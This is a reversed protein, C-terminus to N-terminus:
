FKDLEHFFYCSFAHNYLANLINFVKKKYHFDQLFKINPQCVQAISGIVADMSPSNPVPLLPKGPDPSYENNPLSGKRAEMQTHEAVKKMLTAQDDLWNKLQPTQELLLAKEKRSFTGSCLVYLM